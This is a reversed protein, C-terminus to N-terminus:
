SGFTSTVRVWNPIPKGASRGATERVWADTFGSDIARRMAIQDLETGTGEVVEVAVPEKEANVYVQVVVQGSQDSLDSPIALPEAPPQYRASNYRQFFQTKVSDVLGEAVRAYDDSVPVGQRIAPLFEAEFVSDVVEPSTRYIDTMQEQFWRVWESEDRAVGMAEITSLDRFAASTDTGPVWWRDGDAVWGEHPESPPRSESCAALAVAALAVLVAPRM